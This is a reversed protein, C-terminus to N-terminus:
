LSGATTGSGLVLGAVSAYIVPQVVAAILSFRSRMLLKATFLTAAGTARVAEAAPSM